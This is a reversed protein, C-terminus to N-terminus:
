QPMPGLWSIIAPGLTSTDALPNGEAELLGTIWAMAADYAIPDEPKNLCALTLLTSANNIATDRVDASGLPIGLSTELPGSNDFQETIMGIIGIQQTTWTSADTQSFANFDSCHISLPIEHPQEALAFAPVIFICVVLIPTKV